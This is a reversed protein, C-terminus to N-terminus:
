NRSFPVSGIIGYKILMVQPFPGKVAGVKVFFGFSNDESSFWLTNDRTAQYYVVTFATGGLFDGEELDWRDLPLRSPKKGYPLTRIVINPQGADNKAIIQLKYWDPNVDGGNEEDWSRLVEREGACEECVLVVPALALQAVSVDAPMELVVMERRDLYANNTPAISVTEGAPTRVEILYQMRVADCDVSCDDCFAMTM